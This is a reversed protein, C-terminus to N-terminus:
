AGKQERRNKEKASIPWVYHLLSLLTLIGIMACVAVMAPQWWPVADSVNSTATLGNILSSNAYAYMNYINAQQLAKVLEGDDHEEIAKKLTIERYNECFLTTGAFIDEVTPSFPGEGIADTITIGKFGWENRLVNTLLAEHAQAQICGVKNYSSMVGLSKGITFPGEFARLSEQRLRQESMFTCVGQRNTEQENAAFHKMMSIMGNESLARTLNSVSLYAYLGDETWYDAYRGLFPSRHLNNGPSFFGCIGCYLAEEAELEGRRAMLEKNWTAALVPTSSFGTAQKEDDFLYKVSIGEPGESFSASPKGVSAVSRTGFQDGTGKALEGISMQEIFTWWKEIDEEKELGVGAMDALTLDAPQEVTVEGVSVASTKDDFFQDMDAAIQETIPLRATEPYTDDWDQRSLYTQEHETGGYYYNVDANDFQNTVEVNEEYISYRFTETDLKKIDDYVIVKEADGKVAKGNADTMLKANVDEGEDAKQALINNLADHADSGIAFYYNGADLVYGKAGHCDYSALFYLPVTIEVTESEKPKLEGTKGYGVIQVAAKEVLNEKDYETYPQQAYLQVVEKGAVDGTNTVKVSFRFTQDKEDYEYDDLTQEFTTYSMGYGFTYLMEDAYNWSGESAHCGKGSSANGRGLVVDEYRTEYYKYGVYIGELYVVYKDNQTGEYTYNGWNMMALSSTSVTAFTDVLRGSPNVTGDLVDVVGTLGYFGPNGIWLVADVGYDKLDGVEMPNVSNLIVVIKGFGANQVESLMARESEHLALSSVGDCDVVAMDEGEGCYRSLIVIAADKYDNAYTARVADTYFSADCEGIDATTDENLVRMYPNGGEDKANAYADYLDENITFGAEEFARKWDIQEAENTRPGGSGGRYVVDTSARGFLSIRRENEALPLAGNNELLVSGEALEARCQEMTDGRLKQLGEEGPKGDETYSSTYTYEGELNASGGQISLAENVAGPNEFMTLSLGLTIALLICLVATRGRRGNRHRMM